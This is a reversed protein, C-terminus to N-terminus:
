LVLRWMEVVFHIPWGFAWFFGYFRTDDDLAIWYAWDIMWGLVYITITIDDKNYRPEM